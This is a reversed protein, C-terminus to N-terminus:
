WKRVISKIIMRNQQILTGIDYLENEVNKYAIKSLRENKITELKDLRQILQETNEILENPIDEEKTQECERRFIVLLENRHLENIVVENALNGDEFYSIFEDSCYKDIMSYLSTLEVKKPVIYKWQKEKYETTQLIEIPNRSSRANEQYNFLLSCKLFYLRDSTNIFEMKQLNGRGMKTLKYEDTNTLIAKKNFVALSGYVPHPVEGPVQSEDSVNTFITHTLERLSRTPMCLYYEYLANDISTHGMQPNFQLIFIFGPPGEDGSHKVLTEIVSLGAETKEYIQDFCILPLFSFERLKTKGDKLDENQDLEKKFHLLYNGHLIESFRSGTQEYVSPFLKSQFYQKVDGGSKVVVSCFNVPKIKKIHEYDSSKTTLLEIQEKKENADSCDLLEVFKDLPIYDFGALLIFDTAFEKVLEKLKDAYKHPVSLEPFVAVDVTRGQFKTKKLEALTEKVLNWQKESDKHVVFNDNKIWDVPIQAMAIIIDSSSNINFDITETYIKFM